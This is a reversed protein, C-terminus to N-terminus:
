GAKLLMLELMMDMALTRKQTQDLPVSRFFFDAKACVEQLEGVRADSLGSLVGVAGVAGAAKMAELVAEPAAGEGVEAFLASRIHLPKKSLKLATNRLFKEFEACKAEQGPGFLFALRRIQAVPVKKPDDPPTEVPVVRLGGTPGAAAPAPAPAAPPPVAPAPTPAPSPAAVPAPAPAAAPAPAPAAAPAPAPAAVPAPAPAAAPAPAPAAAPAPAPAAAPAPAPAAAPAPAPAAAPAPAPAAAPA